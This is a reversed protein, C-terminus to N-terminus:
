STLWLFIGILSVFVLVTLAFARKRFSQQQLQKSERISQLLNEQEEDSLKSENIFRKQHTVDGELYAEKTKKTRNRRDTILDRNVKMKRIMDLAHGGWSM